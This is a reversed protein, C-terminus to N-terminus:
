DCNSRVAQEASQREQQYQGETMYTRNGQADTTFQRSGFEDLIAVRRRAQACAYQRQKKEADAAQRQREEEARSKDIRRSYDQLQSGTVSSSGPSSGSPPPPAHAVPDCQGDRPKQQLYEVQGNRVCKFVQAEGSCPLLLLAAAALLSARM